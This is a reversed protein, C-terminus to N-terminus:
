FETKITLHIWWSHTHCSLFGTLWRIYCPQLCLEKWPSLIPSILLIWFLNSSHIWQRLVDTFCLRRSTTWNDDSRQQMRKTHLALQKAFSDLRFLWTWCAIYLTRVYAKSTYEGVAVNAVMMNQGHQAWNRHSKCSSINQYTMTNFSLTGYLTLERACHSLTNNNTTIDMVNVRAPRWSNIHVNSCYM